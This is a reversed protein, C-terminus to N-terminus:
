NMLLKILRYADSRILKQICHDLQFHHYESDTSFVTYYEYGQPPAHLEM